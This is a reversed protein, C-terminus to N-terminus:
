KVSIEDIFIYSDGGAGQHWEPLKGFQYAKVKIYRTETPLLDTEFDKIQVKEDKPDVTNDVTKLLIFDKGNMSAYYEVKQPMLIWARSDQLYTSSLKTLPQPSKFDIIAEFTQGQYGQWEGKRWNIDGNIGDILALKGGATYQPNVTSNLTIDWHNPRRNFNATTVSSKIGKRESYASVQTTKNIIFPGKYPTFTKRVNKDHDDLTM